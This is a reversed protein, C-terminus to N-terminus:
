RKRIIRSPSKDERIGECAKEHITPADGQPHGRPAPIAIGFMLHECSAQQGDGQPLGTNDM